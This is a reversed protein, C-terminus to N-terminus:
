IKTTINILLVKQMLLSLNEGFFLLKFKLNLVMKWINRTVTGQKPSSYHIRFADEMSFIWYFLQLNFFFFFSFFYVEFIWYLVYSDSFVEKQCLIMFLLLWSRFELQCFRLYIIIWKIANAIPIRKVQLNMYDLM